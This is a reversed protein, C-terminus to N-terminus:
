FRNLPIRLYSTGNAAPKPLRGAALNIPVAYLLLAPMSLTRDRAHRMHVYDDESVGDHVHINHARQDAVSAEVRHEKRTETLYDHCFFLRTDPPLSLIHRISRYLQRADGDPFDARATGYDTMFMTDGIFAADGIVYTVDAPTHGPTHMVRIALSGVKITEGDAFLGDFVDPTFADAGHLDLIGNWTRQVQSIEKGIGIRAGLAAAFHPAASLRDAHAHTELVWALNLGRERIHAIIADAFATSTRAAAADFDLVPDIVVCDREGPAHVIYSLSSSATHFFPTVEPKTM